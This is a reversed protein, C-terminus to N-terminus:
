DADVWAHEGRGEVWFHCIAFIVSFHRTELKCGDCPVMKEKEAAHCDKCWKHSASEFDNQPKAEGCEECTRVDCKRCKTKVDGSQYRDFSGPDKFNKCKKCQKLDKNRVGSAESNLPHCMECLHQAAARTRGGRDPLIPRAGCKECKQHQCDYCLWSISGTTQLFERLKTPAWGDCGDNSPGALAM